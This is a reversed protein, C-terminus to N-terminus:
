GILCIFLCIFVYICVVGMLILFRWTYFFTVIKAWTFIKLLFLFTSEASTGSFSMSIMMTEGHRIRLDEMLV